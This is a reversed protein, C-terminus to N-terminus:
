RIDKASHLRSLPMGRLSHLSLLLKKAKLNLKKLETCQKHIHADDLTPDYKALIKEGREKTFLLQIDSPAGGVPSQWAGHAIRNRLEIHEKSKLVLSNIEQRINRESSPIWRNKAEDSAATTLMGRIAKIDAGITLTRGQKNDISLARWLIEHMQNELQGCRFIFEGLAPYYTHPLNMVFDRDQAM